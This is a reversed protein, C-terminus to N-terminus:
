VAGSKPTPSKEKKGSCRPGIVRTSGGRFTWGDGSAQKSAAIFSACDYRAHMPAQGKRHEGECVLELSLPHTGDANRKRTYDVAIKLM